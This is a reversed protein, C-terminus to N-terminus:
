QTHKQRYQRAEIEFFEAMKEAAREISETRAACMESTDISHQVSVRELEAPPFTTVTDFVDTPDDADSGFLRSFRRETERALQKVHLKRPPPRETGEAGGRLHVIPQQEHDRPLTSVRNSEDAATTDTESM